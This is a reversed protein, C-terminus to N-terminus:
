AEVLPDDQHYPRPRPRKFVPCYLLFLWRPWAPRAELIRGRGRYLLATFVGHVWFASCLCRGRYYATDNHKGRRSRMICKCIGSKIEDVVKHLFLKHKRAPMRFAALDTDSFYSLRLKDQYFDFVTYSFRDHCREDHEQKGVATLFAQLSEWDTWAFPFPDWLGPCLTEDAGRFLEYVRQCLTEAAPALLIRPQEATPLSSTTSSPTGPAPREADNSCSASATLGVACTCENANCVELLISTAGGTHQM